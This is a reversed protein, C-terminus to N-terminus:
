HPHTRNRSYIYLPSHASPISVSGAAMKYARGPPISTVDGSPRKRRRCGETTRENRSGREEVTELGRAVMAGRERGGDGGILERVDTASTSRESGAPAEDKRSEGSRSSLLPRM